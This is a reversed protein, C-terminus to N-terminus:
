HDRVRNPLARHGLYSALRSGPQPPLLRPHMQKIMPWGPSGRRVHAPAAYARPSSSALNQSAPRTTSNVLSFRVPDRNSSTESVPARNRSAAQDIIRNGRDLDGDNLYFLSPLWGDAKEAILRLMRPKLAGIWISIDHAPQPGRKAGWVRYQDGAVRVAGRQSADWITRVIDIAESLAQVTEAPTRRPGGM